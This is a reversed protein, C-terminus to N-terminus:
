VANRSRTASAVSKGVKPCSELAERTGRELTTKASYPPQICDQPICQGHANQNRTDITCYNNAAYAQVLFYNGHDGCEERNNNHCRQSGLKCLKEPLPVSASFVLPLAAALVALSNLFCM